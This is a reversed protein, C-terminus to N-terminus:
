TGTFDRRQRGKGGAQANVAFKVRQALQHDPALM